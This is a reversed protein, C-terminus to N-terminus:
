VTLVNIGNLCHRPKHRPLDKDSRACCPHQTQAWMSTNVAHRIFVYRSVFRSRHVQAVLLLLRDM